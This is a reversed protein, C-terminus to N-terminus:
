SQKFATRIGAEWNILTGYSDFTVVKAFHLSSFPLSIADVLTPLVSLSNALYSKDNSLLENHMGWCELFFPPKERNRFAM